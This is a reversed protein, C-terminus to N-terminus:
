RGVGGGLPSGQRDGGHEVPGSHGRSRSSFRRGGLGFGLVSMQQDAIRKHRVRIRRDTSRNSARVSRCTYERISVTYTLHKGNLIQTIGRIGSTHGSTDNKKKSLSTSLFGRLHAFSTIVIVRSIHYTCTNFQTIM